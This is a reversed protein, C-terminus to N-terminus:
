PMSVAPAPATADIMQRLAAEQDSLQKALAANETLMNEIRRQAEEIQGKLIALHTEIAARDQKMGALDSDLLDIEDERFKSLKEASALTAEWKANDEVLADRDSLLVSKQRDLEAFLFAFDRLPRQYVKKVAKDMENPLVRQDNEDLGIVNAPDDDATAPQGSRLHEAVDAAPLLKGLDEESMGAFADYRDVPMSEYLSWPGQSRTLREGTRQDLIHTSELVVSKEKSEVVVFEGLFQKGTKPDAPNADGMEFAYVVSDAALGHPTPNPINVEVRGQNDLPGAPAVQRWARGRGSTLMELKHELQLIGPEDGAGNLLDDNQREVNALQTELRSLNSRLDRHIRTTEAALFLYGVGTLTILLVMVVQSWHTRKFSLIGAVIGLLLVVALLIQM